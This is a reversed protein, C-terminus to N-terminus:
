SGAAPVTIKFGAANADKYFAQVTERSYGLLDKGVLDLKTILDNTATIIHCGAEEAQFINLLERSSAWLLEAQPRAALATRCARMHPMPDVGTDAIRGAFVSIIAPTQPALVAAVERVQDATMIATVNLVVGEASLTRIVDGAFNGKTDTVPVKVNVNKGWTAITRGQAIMGPFDDAFVEFSIPLNPIAAIVQRAFAEYDTVGAKRILSPNTTLGKVNKNQAMKLMGELDAGDAFIKIKLDSTRTM